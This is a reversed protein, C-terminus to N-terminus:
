HYDSDQQKGAIFLSAVLFGINSGIFIGLAFAKWYMTNVERDIVDGPKV